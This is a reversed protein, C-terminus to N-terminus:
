LASITQELINIEDRWEQRQIRIPTYDEEFLVGEAFKIAQFDTEILFGKLEDIRQINAAMTNAANKLKVNQVLKGEVLHYYKCNGGNFAAPLAGNYEIGGDIDFGDNAYGAVYGNEDYLIKM